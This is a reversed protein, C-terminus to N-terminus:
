IKTGNRVVKYEKKTLRNKNIARVLALDTKVKDLNSYGGERYNYWPSWRAEMGHFWTGFFSEDKFVRYLISYKNQTLQDRVLVM